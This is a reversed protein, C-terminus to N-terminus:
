MGIWWRQNEFLRVTVVIENHRTKGVTEAVKKKGMRTNPVSAEPITAADSSSSSPIPTPSPLPSASSPKTVVLTWMAKWVRVRAKLHVWLRSPLEVVLGRWLVTKHTLVVLGTLAMGLSVLNPIHSKISPLVLYTALLLILPLATTTLLLHHFLTHSTLSPLTDQVLHQIADHAQVYLGLQNQIFQMNKTYATSDFSPLTPLLKPQRQPQPQPQAKPAQTQNQNQPQLQSNLPSASSSILRYNEYYNYIITAILFLPPSLALLLPHLGISIDCKGCNTSHTLL